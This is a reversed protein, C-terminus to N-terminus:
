RAAVTLDVRQNLFGRATVSLEIRLTGPPADIAFRGDADTVTRRTAGFGGAEIIAGPVAARNAGAVVQGTVSVPSPTQALAPPAALISLLSAAIAAKFLATARVRVELSSQRAHITCTRVPDRADRRSSIICLTCYIIWDWPRM